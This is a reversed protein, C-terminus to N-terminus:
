RRARVPNLGLSAIASPIVNVICSSAISATRIPGSCVVPRTETHQKTQNQLSALEHLSHLQEQRPKSRLLELVPDM